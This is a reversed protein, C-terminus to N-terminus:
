ISRTTYKQVEHAYIVSVMFTHTQKQTKQGMENALTDTHMGANQQISSLLKRILKSIQSNSAKLKM